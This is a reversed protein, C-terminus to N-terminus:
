NLQPMGFIDIKEAGEMEDLTRIVIHLADSCRMDTFRYKNMQVKRERHLLYTNLWQANIVNAYTPKVPKGENGFQDIANVRKFQRKIEQTFSDAAFDVSFSKIPRVGADTIILRLKKPAILSVEMRVTDGPYWSYNESLPANNWTATRWFPRWARRRESLKGTADQTFAWTLGADVEQKGGANGGMYVSFNDLPQKTKTNLRAEDVTPMGLVITGSIGTWADFSSVAKRYWAGAFCPIQEPPLIEDRLPRFSTNSHPKSVQCGSLFILNFLSWTLWGRACYILLM